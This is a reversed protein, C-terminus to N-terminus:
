SNISVISLYMSILSQLNWAVMKLVSFGAMPPAEGPDPTAVGAGNMNLHFFHHFYCLLIQSSIVWMGCMVGTSKIYNFYSDIPMSYELLFM